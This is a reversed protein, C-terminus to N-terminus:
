YSNVKGGSFIVAGKMILVKDPNTVVEVSSTKREDSFEGFITFIEFKLTWDQPVIIKCGGFLTFSDLVVVKEGLDARSFDIETGGLINTIKGGKFNKNTIITKQGSLINIENLYDVSGADIKHADLRGRKRLLIALGAVILIVPWFEFIRRASIDFIEPLLFVGGFVVM